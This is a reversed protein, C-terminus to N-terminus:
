CAKIQAERTPEVEDLDRALAKPRYLDELFLHLRNSQEAPILDRLLGRLSGVRKELIKIGQGVGPILAEAVRACSDDGVGRDAFVIGVVHHHDDNLDFPSGPFDLSLTFHFCQNRVISQLIVDKPSLLFAPQRPMVSTSTMNALARPLM